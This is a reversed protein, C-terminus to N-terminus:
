PGPSPAPAPAPAVTKPANGKGIEVAFCEAWGDRLYWSTQSEIQYIVGDSVFQDGSSDRQLDVIDAAAFVTVYNRQLDLGLAVYTERPVSQVSAAMAQAPGFTAVWQRAANKM